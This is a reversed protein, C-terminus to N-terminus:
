QRYEPWRWAPGDLPRYNVGIANLRKLHTKIRSEFDTYNKREAPSWVVESLASLRPWAMYELHKPTKIYEAWLQAQAGLIHKTRGSAVASPVPEYSYVRELSIHSGWAWPERFDPTGQEQQYYDLYLHSNSAMVVDHGANAAAIGNVENKWSRWSMVTAGPALGGEFIEEWGLLRRGKSTLYTDFQKVFWSQLGHLAPHEAKEGNKDVYNQLM